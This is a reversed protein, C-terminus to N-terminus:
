ALKTAAETLLQGIKKIKDATAGEASGAAAITHKGISSLAKHVKAGDIKDHGLLEDLQKLEKALTHLAPVDTSNLTEVWSELSRGAGAKAHTLGQSLSEITSTLHASYKTADSIIFITQFHFFILLPAFSVHYM